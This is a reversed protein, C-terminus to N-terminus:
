NRGNGRGPHSSGGEDGDSSDSGSGTRVTVSDSASRGAADDATATIVAEGGSHHRSNWNCQLSGGDGACILSGDVLLRLMTVRHSSSAEARLRVPGSVSAGDSPSTIAVTLAATDDTADDEAEDKNQVEVTIEHEARNGAHDVAQAMLSVSGDSVTTSDWSFAYPSIETSGVQRGGAYLDVRKVGSHEDSASVDVAVLGQVTVGQGPNTIRVEPPTTDFTSRRAAEAVAAAADVHGYGFYDDRDGNPNNATSYLVDDLEAPALRPNASRILAAVGAAVPSAFSTGSASSYGGGRSTTLIGSGPAAVNVYAGYNSWSAKNGSSTTASVSTMYPNDAYGPDTSANGAAVIVVGGQNRMYQAASSVSSISSVDYSINAVQAGQDAAWVLGQAIASVSAYGDTRNSVRVPLIDANWGVAAVGTNNDTTAAAAGAVRTGHGHVDSTDTSGDVANYGRLVKGALDAHNSDVGTDLIAITVGDGQATKWASAANVAPLHWADGYRPDNPIVESPPVLRDVEAFRVEPRRSLARAIQEEAQRPVRVIRIDLQRIRDTPQAGHARLMAHLAADPLGSRPQVLIQGQVFAPPQGGTQAQAPTTFGAATLMMTALALVPLLVLYRAYSRM